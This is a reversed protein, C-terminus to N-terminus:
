DLLRLYPSTALHSIMSPEQASKALLGSSCRENEMERGGIREVCRYESIYDRLSIRVGEEHTGLERPAVTLSPLNSLARHSDDDKQPQTERSFTEQEVDEHLKHALSSSMPFDYLKSVPWRNFDPSGVVNDRDRM